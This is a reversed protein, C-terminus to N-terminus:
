GPASEARGLGARIEVQSAPGSTFRSSGLTSSTQFRTNMCARAAGQDYGLGVKVKWGACGSLRRLRAM